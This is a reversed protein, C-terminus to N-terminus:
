EAVGNLLKKRIEKGGCEDMNLVECTECSKIGFMQILWCESTLDSSKMTKIDINALMDYVHENM